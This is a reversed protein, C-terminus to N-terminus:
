FMDHGESKRKCVEVGEFWTHDVNRNGTGGCNKYWAGGPACCSVRGSKAFTGCKPCGMTHAVASTIAATGVSTTTPSRVILERDPILTVGLLDSVSTCGERSVSGSSDKFMETKSARSYIWAAGCLHHSFSTADMFMQNM